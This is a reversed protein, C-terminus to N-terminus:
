TTKQKKRPKAEDVADNFGGAFLGATFLSLFALAILKRSNM